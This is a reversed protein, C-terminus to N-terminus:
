ESKKYNDDELPEKIQLPYKEKEGAMPIMPHEMTLKGESLKLWRLPFTITCVTGCTEGSEIKISGYHEEIIHKVFPLGMGVGNSKTTFFNDFVRNINERSIGCGSDSIILEVTDATEASSTNISGGKPTAELANKYIYFIAMMLVNRNMNIMLPTESLTAGLNVGKKEANSKVCIIAEKVVENLDNHSFISQKKEILLNFEQIIEQLKESEDLIVKLNDLMEKDIEKHEIMRRSMMGIVVAPNTVRDAINLAMLSATREAVLREIDNTYQEALALATEVEELLKSHETVDRESTALGTIDGNDDVHKTITLWVDITKGNKTTRKTQLFEGDEGKKIKEIIEKIEGSRDDPIIESINMKMAEAESYGYMKEAGRNWATIRGELDQVTIADVSEAVVSALLKIKEDPGKKNSDSELASVREQLDKLEAMLQEKTKEKKEM